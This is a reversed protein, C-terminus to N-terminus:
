QWESSVFIEINARDHGFVACRVTERSLTSLSSLRKFIQSFSLKNVFELLNRLLGSDTRKPWAVFIM